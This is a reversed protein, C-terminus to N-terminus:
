DRRRTLVHVVRIIVAVVVVLIAMKFVFLVLGARRARGVSRRLDGGVVAAVVLATDLLSLGSGKTESDSM